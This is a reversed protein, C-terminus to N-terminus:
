GLSEAVLHATLRPYRRLVDEKSRVKKRMELEEKTRARNGIM